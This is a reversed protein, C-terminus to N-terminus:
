SLFKRIEKLLPELGKKEMASIAFVKEKNYRRKFRALNIRAQPIDMKNAVIIRHKFSIEESYEELEHVIQEYDTLPDRGDTAAMDIVHLLLRTREAHRLFRLGLGKGKHADKILGPLDTMIFSFDGDSVVGLIPYKTTFPYNGIKSTVSSMASILTSKGANPCGIIGVDAILKLELSITRKEGKGPPVVTKNNANGIGGKGGKAVTVSQKDRSLDKILLGTNYDRLITGVPVRIVCNKGDRGKKGKSSANGGKQAKYHQKFRFDLLTQIARDAIFVVDGGKGGDGGDPRPYRMYKERYYSECGKGGSGAEVYIKAEDVFIM